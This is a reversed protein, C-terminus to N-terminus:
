ERTFITQLYNLVFDFDHFSSRDIHMVINYFNDSNSSLHIRHPIRLMGLLYGVRKDFEFNLDLALQFDKSRMEEVFNQNPLNLRNLKHHLIKDMDLVMFHWDTFLQRLNRILSIASDVYDMEHPLIVLVNQIRDTSIPFSLSTKGMEKFVRRTKWRAYTEAVFEKLYGM